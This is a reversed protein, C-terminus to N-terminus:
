DHYQTRDRRLAALLQLFDEPPDVRWQLRRATLPHNLTLQVAHLAQRQFSKLISECEAGAEAPLRLRGGYVPDGVIPFRLYQMHVRIQHTRGTALQVGIYTHARFRELVRYCSLAPRGGAVVAMRKRDVPHRGVPADVRGGAIMKGSVVAVYERGMSRDKLQKTLHNFATQTAAVVLLGSTNKDLRHVLGARPLTALQPAHYLLGNVLTGERHGAAPHVVMGAPKNIILLHEDQYCIDLSLAQATDTLPESELSYLEIQEGGVVRDRPQRIRGDVKIQGSRIWRQLRSRSYQPLLKALAQDLRLGAHDSPIHCSDAPLYSSTTM